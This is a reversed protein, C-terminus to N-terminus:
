WDDITIGLECIGSVARGWALTSFLKQEQPCTAARDYSSISLRFYHTCLTQGTGRPFMFRRGSHQAWSMSSIHSFLSSGQWAWISRGGVISYCRLWCVLSLHLACFDGSDRCTVASPKM